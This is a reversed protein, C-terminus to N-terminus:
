LFDIILCAGVVVVEHVLVPPPVEDVVKGKSSAEAHVEVVKGSSLDVLVVRGFSGHGEQGLAAEGLTGDVEKWEELVNPHLTPVLTNDSDHVDGCILGWGGPKGVLCGVHSPPAHNRVPHLAIYDDHLM